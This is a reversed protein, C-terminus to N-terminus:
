FEGPAERRPSGSVAARGRFKQCARAGREKLDKDLKDKTFGKQESQRFHCGWEKRNKKGKESVRIM